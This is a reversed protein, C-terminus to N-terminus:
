PTPMPLTVVFCAGQPENPTYSVDGGHARCLARVIALGFGVSEANGAELRFPEFLTEREDPPVGPGHDRFMVEVQGNQSRAEIVYPPDGYRLANAALNVVIQEFRGPDAKVMLEPDARIEFQGKDDAYSLAQALAEALPVDEQALTLRGRELRALDLLDSSMRELRHAQRDASRVLDRFAEDNLRERGGLLLRFTGRIATLPNRVDHALTSVLASRLRDVRRIQLLTRELLSRQRVLDRAMLGAVMAILLGIGMRFTISNWLLDYGYRGSGWVERGAYLASAALWVGLAGPLHFRVAGELPLILLVAWLASVEDFAFLWVFAEAVLIDFAVSGVALAQARRLDRGKRHLAVILLNGAALVGVAVVAAPFVGAPYPVPEEYALVQALSFVVAAWRVIIMTRESRRLDELRRAQAVHHDSPDSEQPDTPESLRM